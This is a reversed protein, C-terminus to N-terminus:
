LLVDEAAGVISSRVKHSKNTWRSLFNYLKDLDDMFLYQRRSGSGVCSRFTKISMSASNKLVSIVMERVLKSSGHFCAM